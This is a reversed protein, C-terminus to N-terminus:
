FPLRIIFTTGKDKGSSESKVTIQGDHRLVVSQAITLGLGTGEGRRDITYFPEFIHPLHRRKIPPGTNHIRIIAIKAEEDFETSITLVGGRHMAKVANDMINLFVKDMQEDDMEILPLRSYRKRIKIRQVICKPKVLALNLNLCRHLNQRRINLNIPRGYSSLEKTVRELREVNKIIAHTLERKPDYESLKSQLYHITMGIIALPNKIEHALGAAIGGTTSIREGRLFEDQTTKLRKYAIDLEESLEKVKRKEEQLKKEKKKLELANGIIESSLRLLVLDKNSWDAGILIGMDRLSANIPDDINHTETFRSSITSDYINNQREVEGM